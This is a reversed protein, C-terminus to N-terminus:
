PAAPFAPADWDLGIDALGARLARLDWIHVAQGLNSSVLLRSGDPSFTLFAPRAQEPDELQVLERGTELDILRFRGATEGALLRGDPSFAVPRNLQACVRHKEWSGVQWL